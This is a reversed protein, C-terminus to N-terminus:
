ADACTERVLLAEAFQSQANLLHRVVESRKELAAQLRRAAEVQQAARQQSEKQLRAVADRLGALREESKARELRGTSLEKEISALQQEAEGIANQAISLGTELKELDS